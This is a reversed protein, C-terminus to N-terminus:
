REIMKHVLRRIYQMATVGCYFCSCGGSEQTHLNRKDARLCVEAGKSFHIM